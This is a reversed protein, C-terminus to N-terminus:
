VAEVRPALLFVYEMYREDSSVSSDTYSLKFPYDNGISISIVDGKDLVGIIDMLRTVDFLSACEGDGKMDVLEDYSYSVEVENEDSKGIFKIYDETCKIKMYSTINKITKVANIFQAAIMDVEYDFDFTPIKIDDKLNRADLTLISYKTNKSHMVIHNDVFEINIDGSMSNIFSVMRKADIGFRKITGDEGAKYDSVDYEIFADSYLSIDIMSVHAADTVRTNFSNEKINLIAEDDITKVTKLYKLITDKNIIFKM